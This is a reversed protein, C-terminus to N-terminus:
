QTSTVMALQQREVEILAGEAPRLTMPSHGLTALYDLWKNFFVNMRRRHDALVDPPPYLGLVDMLSADDTCHTIEALRADSYLRVHAHAIEVDEGDRRLCQTMRAMVTYPRRSEICLFLDLGDDLSSCYLGVPLDLAGFLRQMRLLNEAYLGMLYAFGSRGPSLYPTPRAM